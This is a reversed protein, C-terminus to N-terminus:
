SNEYIVKFDQCDRFMAPTLNKEEEIMKELNQFATDHEKSAKLANWVLEVCSVRTNDSLQFLDDYPIGNQKVLADIIETYESNDIENSTLLCVYTCDFVYDFNSYHVGVATAEIFKFKDVDGTKDMYDCNMLVHSYRSWKWTKLFSLIRVAISSLASNNGTLIIYYGSALMEILKQREDFTLPDRTNVKLKPIIGTIWHYVNYVFGSYKM